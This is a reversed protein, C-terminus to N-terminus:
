AVAGNKVDSRGENNLLYCEALRFHIHIERRRGTKNMRQSSLGDFM